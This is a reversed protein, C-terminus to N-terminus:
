PRELTLTSNINRQRTYRNNNTKWTNATNTEPCNCRRKAFLDATPLTTGEGSEEGVLVIKEDPGDVALGGTLGAVGISFGQVHQIDANV